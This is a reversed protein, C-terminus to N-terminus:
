HSSNLRTSKRDKQTFFCPILAIFNIINALKFYVLKVIDILRSYKISYKNRSQLDVLYVESFGSAERNLKKILLDLQVKTKKRLKNLILLGEFIYHIKNKVIIQSRM